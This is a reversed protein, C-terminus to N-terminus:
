SAHRLDGAADHAANTLAACLARIEFAAKSAPAHDIVLRQYALADAFNDDHGIRAILRSGLRTQILQATDVITRRRPDIMNLVLSPMTGDAAVAFRGQEVSPLLPLCASSAQLSVIATANLQMAQDLLSSQGAPLDLVVTFDQAVFPAVTRELWGADDCARAMAERCGAADGAGFPMLLLNPGASLVADSAPRDQLAPDAWGRPDILPMGFSLRLANQSDLDLALVRQGTRALAGAVNAALTTRGVGGKPSCFALLPTSM